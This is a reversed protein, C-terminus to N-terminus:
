RFNDNKKVKNYLIMKEGTMKHKMYMEDLFYGESRGSTAQKYVQYHFLKMLRYFGPVDINELATDPTLGKYEAIQRCGTQLLDLRPKTMRFDPMNFADRMRYAKYGIKLFLSAKYHIYEYFNEVALREMEPTLETEEM